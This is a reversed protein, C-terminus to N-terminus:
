RRGESIVTRLLSLRMAVQRTLVQYELANQTLVAMEHDLSVGNGDGRVSWGGAAVSRPQVEGAAARMGGIHRPDTHTPALRDGRNLAERLADRFVVDRRAYGPTEVNAVNDLLAEHRRAVGRVAQELAWLTRDRFWIGTM